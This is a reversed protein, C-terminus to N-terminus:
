FRGEQRARRLAGLVRVFLSGFIRNPDTPTSSGAQGFGLQQAALCFYLRDDQGIRRVSQTDILNGNNMGPMDETRSATFYPERPNASQAVSPPIGTALLTTMSWTRHWLWPERVTHPNLPSYDSNLDNSDGIPFTPDSADARAVMFGAAVINNRWWTKGSPSDSGYAYATLDVKGVIRELFWESGIVDALSHTQVTVDDDQPADFTIPLIALAQTGDIPVDLTFRQGYLDSEPDESVNQSGITPLWTYKRRQRRKRM